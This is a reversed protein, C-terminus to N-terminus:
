NLFEAANLDVVYHSSWAHGTAALLYGIRGGCILEALRRLRPQNDVPLVIFFEIRIEFYFNSCQLGFGVKSRNYAINAAM